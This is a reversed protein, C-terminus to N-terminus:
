FPEGRRFLLGFLFFLRGPAVAPLAPPEAEAGQSYIECVM